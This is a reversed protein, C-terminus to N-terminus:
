VDAPIPTIKTCFWVRVSSCLSLRTFLLSFFIIWTLTTLLGFHLDLVLVGDPFSSKM